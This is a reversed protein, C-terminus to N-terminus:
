ASSTFRLRSGVEWPTHVSDVLFVDKVKLIASVSFTHIVVISEDVSLGTSMGHWNTECSGCGVRWANAEGCFCSVSNDAEAFLEREAIGGGVNM